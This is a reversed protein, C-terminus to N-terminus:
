NKAHAYVWATLLDTKNKQLEAKEAMEPIIKGWKHATFESAEHLEHCKGCNDNYIKEGEALQAPTYVVAPAADKTATPYGKKHCAALVSVSAAIAISIYIKKM